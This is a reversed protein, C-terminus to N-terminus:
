AATVHWSGDAACALRRDCGLAAAPADAGPLARVVREGAARLQAVLSALAPDRDAPALIGARPAGAELAGFQALLKLNTSFGTAPRARGFRAGINDYRGGWGVQQGIGPVFAEFMVGTHYDYGRLEALDVHFRELSLDAAALALMREIEELAAFVGAPAGELAAQARGPVEAGGNLEVLACLCERVRGRVGWDALARQLEDVAKRQLIDFVESQQVADLGAERVLERFIGIHGLNVHVDEMGAIELVELLLALVEVDSDIGDHGYLEAGLQLPNRSGLFNEPLTHMVSDLYCLRVPGPRQLRHADIRAAQPTIDARLGLLRGSLQDTLKFTQLELDSGLGSLLSELYEVLPPMVLEYGWASMRDLLRRRLGELAEAQPPLWEDVGEPLLWPNRGSM